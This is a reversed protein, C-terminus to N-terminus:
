LMKQIKTYSTWAHREKESRSFVFSMLKIQDLSSNYNLEENYKKKYIKNYRDFTDKHFGTIGKGKGGDHISNPNYMSEMWVVKKILSPDQGFQPAIKEIIKPIPIIDWNIYNGIPAEAMTPKVCLTMTAVVLVSAITTKYRM